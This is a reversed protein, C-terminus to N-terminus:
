QISVTNSMWDQNDNTQDQKLFCSKDEGSCLLSVGVEAFIIITIHM